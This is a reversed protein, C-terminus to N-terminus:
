GVSKKERVFFMEFINLLQSKAAIIGFGVPAIIALIDNKLAGIRFLSQFAILDKDPLNRFFRTVFEIILHDTITFAPTGASKKCFIALMNDISGCKLICISTGRNWVSTLVTIFIDPKQIVAIINVHSVHLSLDHLPKRM